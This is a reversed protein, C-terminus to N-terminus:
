PKTWTQAARDFQWSAAEKPTGPWPRRAFEEPTLIWVDKLDGHASLTYHVALRQGVLSGSMALMNNQGRIRAGPALRLPNGNLRAEPPNDIVIEGRLADPPFNRQVQAAAGVAFLAAFLLVACRFM